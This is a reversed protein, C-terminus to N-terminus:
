AVVRKAVQQFLPHQDLVELELCGFFAREFAGESSCVEREKAFHRFYWRSLSFFHHGNMQYRADDQFHAEVERMKTVFADKEALCSNNMLYRKIFESENFQISEGSLECCADFGIWSMSLGLLHNTAKIAWLRLLVTSLTKLAHQASVGCGMLVLSMMKDFTAENFLYMELCAFDTPLLIDLRRVRAFLHDGDADYVLTPCRRPSGVLNKDLEGALALVRGRNGEDCGHADVLSRPVDVADVEMVSVAHGSRHRLYWALLAADCSGEVFVDRVEPELEYLTCLELITRRAVYPM